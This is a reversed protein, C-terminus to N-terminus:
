HGPRLTLMSGAVPGGPKSGRRFAITPQFLAGGSSATGRTISTGCWAAALMRSRNPCAPWRAASLLVRVVLYVITDNMGLASNSCYLCPRPQNVIGRTPTNVAPCALWRVHLQADAPTHRVDVEGQHRRQRERGVAGHPSHPAPRMSEWAPAGRFGPPGGVLAVGRGGPPGRTSPGAGAARRSPRALLAGGAARGPQRPAGTPTPARTSPLGHVVQSGRQM